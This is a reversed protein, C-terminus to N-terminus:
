KEAVHQAFRKSERVEEGRETQVIILAATDPTEEILALAKEPDLLAVAKPLSDSALAPPPLVPTPRRGTQGLGTRPDVIHSYRVGSILTYQESGRSTSVAAKALRLTRAPKARTLPAVDIKWGAAGPPADSAAID